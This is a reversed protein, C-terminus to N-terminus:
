ILCILIKTKLHKTDSFEKNTKIRIDDEKKIGDELITLGSVIYTWFVLICIGFEKGVQLGREM